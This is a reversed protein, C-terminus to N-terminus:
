RVGDGANNVGAANDQDTQQLKGIAAAYTDRMLEVIQIAEDLRGVANASPDGDAGGVAVAAFKAQLAQASKLGGFGSVHGLNRADDRMDLLELRFTECRDRLAAGIQDDMRLEGSIAQQKMNQWHQLAGANDDAM